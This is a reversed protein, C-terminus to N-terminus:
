QQRTIKEDHLNVLLSKKSSSDGDIIFYSIEMDDKKLEALMKEMGYGEMAKSSGQSFPNASFFFEIRNKGVM